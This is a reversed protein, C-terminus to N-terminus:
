ASDDRESPFALGPAGPDQLRSPDFGESLLMAHCDLRGLDRLRDCFRKLTDADETLVARIGNVNAQALLGMDIQVSARSADLDDALPKLTEALQGALVAEDFNFPLILFNHLGLADLRQRRYFEMVALTSLYLPVGAEVCHRFYDRAVAHQPRERNALTILFSTDLLCGASM